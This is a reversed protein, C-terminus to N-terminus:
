QTKIALVEMQNKHNEGTSFSGMHNQMSNVKEMIAKLM